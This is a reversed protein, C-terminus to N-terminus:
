RGPKGRLLWDIAASADPGDAPEASRVGEAASVPAPATAPSGTVPPDSRRSPAPIEAEVRKVRMAVRSPKPESPAAAPGMPSAILESVSTETPQPTATTAAPMRDAPSRPSMITAALVALSLIGACSALLPRHRVASVGSAIRDRFALALRAHLWALADISRPIVSRSAGVVHAAIRGLLTSLIPRTRRVRTLLELALTLGRRAVEAASRAAWRHAAMLSTRLRALLDALHAILPGAVEWVYASTGVARTVLGPLRGLRRAALGVRSTAGVFAAQGLVTLSISLSVRPRDPGAAFTAASRIADITKGFSQVVTRPSPIRQRSSTVMQELSAQEKRCDGCQRLHAAVLAM